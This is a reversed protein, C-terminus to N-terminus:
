DLEPWQLWRALSGASPLDTELETLTPGPLALLGMWNVWHVVLVSATSDDRGDGPPYTGLLGCGGGPAQRPPCGRGGVAM